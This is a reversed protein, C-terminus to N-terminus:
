ALHREILVMAEDVTAADAAAQGSPRAVMLVPLGLERAAVLKSAVAGGGANKTVLVDVRHATMTELEEAVSFPPRDLIVTVHAPPPEDPPEIMRAFVRADDRCYFAGLQQRGITVLARTGRDLEHAAAEISPVEIWKDRDSPIWPPRLLRLYALGLATAVRHARASMTAAFAHTADVVVAIEEAVLFARLGEDGGFGGIRVEGDPLRPAALRGALSSIVHWRGDRDLRRALERADGTGGVILLRPRSARM